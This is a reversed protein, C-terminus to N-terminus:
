AAGWGWGWGGVITHIEVAGPHMQSLAALKSVNENYSLSLPGGGLLPGSASAKKGM